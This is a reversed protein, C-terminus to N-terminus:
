KKLEEIDVTEGNVEVTVPKEAGDEAEHNTETSQGELVQDQSEM